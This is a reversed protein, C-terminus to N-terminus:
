LNQRIPLFLLGLSTPLLFYRFFDKNLSFIFFRFGKLLIRRTVSMIDFYVSLNRSNGLQLVGSPARLGLGCRQLHPVPAGLPRPVRSLEGSVTVSGPEWCARCRGGRGCETGGPCLSDCASFRIRCMKVEQM